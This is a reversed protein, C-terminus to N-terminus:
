TAYAPLKGHADTRPIADMILSTIAKSAIEVSKYNLVTRSWALKARNALSQRAWEDLVGEFAYGVVRGDKDFDVIIYENPVKTRPLYDSYAVPRPEVTIHLYDRDVDLTYPKGNLDAREVKLTGQAIM